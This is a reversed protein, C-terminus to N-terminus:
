YAMLTQLEFQLWTARYFQHITINFNKIHQQGFRFHQYLYQITFGFGQTSVPLSIIQQRKIGTTPVANTPPPGYQKIFANEVEQKMTEKGQRERFENRRRRDHNTPRRRQKQSKYQSPSHRDDISLESMADSERRHKM